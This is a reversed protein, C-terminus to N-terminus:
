NYNFFKWIEEDFFPRSFVYDQVAKAKIIDMTESYYMVEDFHCALM